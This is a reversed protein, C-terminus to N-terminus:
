WGRRWTKQAPEPQLSAILRDYGDARHWEERQRAIAQMERCHQLAAATEGRSILDDAIHDCFQPEPLVRGGRGEARLRRMEESLTLGTGGGGDGEDGVLAVTFDDRRVPHDEDPLRSRLMLLYVLGAGCLAGAAHAYLGLNYHTELGIFLGSLVLELVVWSGIFWLASINRLTFGWTGTAAHMWSFPSIWLLSTIRARPYILLYAAMVGAIAGSAGVGPLDSEYGLYTTAVNAIIGCALYFLLFRFRGLLWEINDGFLWLMVMNGLLHMLGGHMFMSSIWSLWAPLSTGPITGGSLIRTPIEGWVEM